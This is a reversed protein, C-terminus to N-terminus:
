MSAIDGRHSSPAQRSLKTIIRYLKALAASQEIGEARLFSLRLQNLYNKVRAQRVPSNYEREIVEVAQQFSTAYVYIKDLYYRKADGALLNHMYQFKQTPSLSYDRCIQLYEDVFEVWSEGLGGSFKRDREKLRMAVNHAIKDMASSSFAQSTNNRPTSPTRQESLRSLDSRMRRGAAIIETVIAVAADKDEQEIYINHALTMMIRRSSHQQMNAGRSDLFNRVETYAAPLECLEKSFLSAPPFMDAFERLLAEGCLELNEELIRVSTIFGKQTSGLEDVNVQAMFSSASSPVTADLNAQQSNEERDVM